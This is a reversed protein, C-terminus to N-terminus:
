TVVEERAPSTAPTGAPVDETIPPAPLGFWSPRRAALGSKTAAAVAPRMFFYAAILDIITALGLYFAFGRVPGVTLWYLVAAGILSALDAAVITRYATV